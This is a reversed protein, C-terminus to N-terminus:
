CKTGSIKQRGGNWGNLIIISEKDMQSMHRKRIANQLRGVCSPHGSFMVHGSSGHSQNNRLSFFLFFYGRSQIVVVYSSKGNPVIGMKHYRSM